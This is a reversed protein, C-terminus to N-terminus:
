YGSSIEWAEVKKVPESGVPQSDDCVQTGALDRSRLKSLMTIM